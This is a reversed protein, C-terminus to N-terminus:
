ITSSSWCDSMKIEVSHSKGVKIRDIVGVDLDLWVAEGGRGSNDSVDVTTNGHEDCCLLDTGFLLAIGYHREGGTGQRWVYRACSCWMSVLQPGSIRRKVDSSDAKDNMESKLLLGRESNIM